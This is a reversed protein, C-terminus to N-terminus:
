GLHRKLFEKTLAWAQAAAGADHDGRADCFFGHNVDSIEVSTFPKGLRRMEAIVAQHQEAPIYTDKGAWFFLTHGSLQPALGIKDPHIAGGYFSVACRLPAYANACFALRGGMCFGLAALRDGQVGTLRPMLALAAKLDAESNEATYKMAVEISAMINDYGATYNPHTRHFMDPAAVVYGEAALRAAVDRIHENVGFIEQLLLICPRPGAGAPRAVHVDMTTGDSVEARASETAIETSM